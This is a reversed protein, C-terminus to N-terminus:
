SKLKGDSLEKWCSVAANYVKICYVITLGGFRMSLIQLEVECFVPTAPGM